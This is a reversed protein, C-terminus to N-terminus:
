DDGKFSCFQLQAITKVAIESIGQRQVIHAHIEKADDSEYGEEPKFLVIMCDAAEAIGKSGKIFHHPHHIAKPDHLIARSLQSITIMIVDEDRAIDALGKAADELSAAKYDGSVMRQIYDVVVFVVNHGDKKWEIRKQKIVEQIHELTVSSTRDIHLPENMYLHANEIVKEIEDDRIGPSGISSSNVIARNALIGEHIDGEQMEMSFWIGGIRKNLWRSTLHIAFRSKGLKEMGALVYMKQKQFGSLIKDLKEIESSIGKLQHGSKKQERMYEIFDYVSKGHNYQSQKQIIINSLASTFKPLEEEVNAPNLESLALNAEHAVKRCSLYNTLRQVVAEIKRPFYLNCELVLERTSHQLANVEVVGSRQYQTSIDIYAERTDSCYFAQPDLELYKNEHVMYLLVTLECHRDKLTLMNELMAYTKRKPM